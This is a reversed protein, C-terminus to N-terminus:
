ATKTFDIETAGTKTAALKQNGCVDMPRGTPKRDNRIEFHLHIEESYGTHGELGITEDQSVRQGQKVRVENLHGYLTTIRKDSSHLIEVTNGYGGNQSNGQANTGGSNPKFGDVVSVVIGDAAAKVVTDQRNQIDLGGHYERRPSGRWGVLSTITGKLPCIFSVEGSSPLDGGKVSPPIYVLSKVYRLDGVPMLVDGIRKFGFKKADPVPWEDLAQGEAADQVEPKKFEADIRALFSNIAQEAYNKKKLAAAVREKIEDLSNAGEILAETDLGIKKLDLFVKSELVGAKRLENEFDTADVVLRCSKFALANHEKSYLIECDKNLKMEFTEDLLHAIINVAVPVSADTAFVYADARNKTSDIFVMSYGDGDKAFSYKAGTTIPTKQEKLTPFVFQKAASYIRQGSEGTVVHFTVYVSDPLEDEMHEYVGMPEALLQPAKAQIACYLRAAAALNELDSCDPSDVGKVQVSYKNIEFLTSAHASVLASLAVFVLVWSLKM